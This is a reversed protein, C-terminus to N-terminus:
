QGTVHRIMALVSGPVNIPELTVGPHDNKWVRFLEDAFAQGISLVHEFDLVIHSFKELGALVRRAQSRSLYESDLKYLAVRVETRDFTLAEGTYRNFVETLDVTTALDVWFEVRTGKVGKIDAVLVDPLRNDFTLRYNSSKIQLLSAVRSSFFLGEGSHHKPDTTQKGKLLFQIAEIESELGHSEKINRFIGIGRDIVSFGIARETRELHVTITASRSHEIANNLIETFGYDVIRGVNHPVDRLIATQRKIDKLVVDEQLNRNKLFRNYVLEDALAALLRSSENVVYRARNAKGVKRVRGANEMGQLIRHIYTRSLGTAKAVEATTVRGRSTLKQEIYAAPKM